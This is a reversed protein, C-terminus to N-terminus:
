GIVGQGGVPMCCLAVLDEDGTAEIAFETHRPVVVVSGASIAHELAGIRASGCGGLVVFVEQRTLQHPTGSHGPELRVEWVSTDHSGTSPTALSTFRAGPLQHTPEQPREIVAM